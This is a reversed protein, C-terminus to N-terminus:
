HRALHTAADEMQVHSRRAAAAARHALDVPSEAPAEPHQEAGAKGNPTNAGVDGKKEMDLAEKESLGSLVTCTGGFRAFGWRVDALAESPTHDDDAFTEFRKFIKGALDREVGKELSLGKGIEVIKGDRILIDATENLGVQPDIVHANKLLLAM